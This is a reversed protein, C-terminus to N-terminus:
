NHLAIWRMFEPCASLNRVLASPAVTWDALGGLAGAIYRGVRMSPYFGTMIARGSPEHTLSLGLNDLKLLIIGPTATKFARLSVTMGEPTDRLTGEPADYVFARDSSKNM